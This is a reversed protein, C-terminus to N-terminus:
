SSPHAGAPAECRQVKQAPTKKGVEKRMFKINKWSIRPNISVDTAELKWEICTCSNQSLPFTKHHTQNQFYFSSFASLASRLHASTLAHHSWNTVHGTLQSSESGSSSRMDKQRLTVQVDLGPRLIHRIQTNEGVQRSNSASRKVPQDEGWGTVTWVDSTIQSKWGVKRARSSFPGKLRSMKRSAAICVSHIHTLFSDTIDSFNWM